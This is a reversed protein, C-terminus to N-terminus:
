WNSTIWKKFYDLKFFLFFFGKKTIPGIPNARDPHDHGNILLTSFAMHYSVISNWAWTTQPPYNIVQFKGSKSLRTGTTRGLWFERICWCMLKLMNMLHISNMPIWICSSPQPPAFGDNRISSWWDLTMALNVPFCSKVCYNFRNIVIYIM